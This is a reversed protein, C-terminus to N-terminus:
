LQILPEDDPGESPRIVDKNGWKVRPFDARTENVSIAHRAYRVRGSLSRDYNEAKWRM